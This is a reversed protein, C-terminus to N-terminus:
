PHSYVLFVCKMYLNKFPHVTQFPGKLVKVNRGKLLMQARVSFARTPRSVPFFFDAQVPRNVSVHLLTTSFVCVCVCVRKCFIQFLYCLCVSIIGRVLCKAYLSLILDRNCLILFYVKQEQAFTVTTQATWVQRETRLRLSVAGGQPCYLSTCDSGLLSSPYYFM